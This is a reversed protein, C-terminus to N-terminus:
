SSSPASLGVPAAPRRQEMWALILLAPLAAVATFGFFPIWGLAASVYGAGSSLWTRAIAAFSTLLAYQTATYSVNCLSSLYAVFATTGIGGALNEIGITAVLVARDAGAYAQVAFMLNSGAQLLGGLVLARVIGLRHVVFGGLVGGAITAALGFTKAVAALDTKDFGIGLLFNNTMVGALSDGLKFLVVFALIAVWGPRKAFDAFPDVVATRLWHLARQLAPGTAAPLPKRHPEACILATIAGVAMLGATALYTTRWDSASALYLAGAGSALMGGRYGLVAATAGAGQMEPPLRDVRFADIVIDQTASAAAVFVAWAATRWPDVAPDAYGLGVLGIVLLVQSLIMWSRRQGLLPGLWPLVFRDVLPSWAFKFGYPTGVSAFLGVTEPKVQAETLWVTLTSATLALPLGSSFGLAFLPLVRRDFYVGLTRLWDM